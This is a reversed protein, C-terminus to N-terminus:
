FYFRTGRDIGVVLNDVWLIEPDWAIALFSGDHQLQAVRIM